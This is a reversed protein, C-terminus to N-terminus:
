IEIGGKEGSKKLTRAYEEYSVGNLDCFEKQERTLVVKNGTTQTIHSSPLSASTVRILRTKEAEVNKSIEGDVDYGRKRLEVEMNYMTLLPGDPSTRWRPNNNLIEQFIQSKESDPDNLESHRKIVLQSNEEMLQVTDLNTKEEEIQKKEANLIEKTKVEALKSVAAKWDKQALKDLEDLEVQQESTTTSSPSNALMINKLEEISRQVNTLIRDHAYVKNKLSDQKSPEKEEEKKEQVTTEPIEKTEEEVSVVVGGEETETIESTKEKEKEEPM